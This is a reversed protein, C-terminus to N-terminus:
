VTYGRLRQGAGTSVIDVSEIPARPWAPRQPRHCNERGPPLLRCTRDNLANSTQMLTSGALGWRSQVAGLASADRYRRPGEDAARLLPISLARLVGMASTRETRDMERMLQRHFTVVSQPQLDFGDGGVGVGGDSCQLLEPWQGSPLM